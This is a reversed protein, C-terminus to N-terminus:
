TTGEESSGQIAGWLALTSVLIGVWFLGWFTLYRYPELQLAALGLLGVALVVTTTSQWSQLDRRRSVLALAFIVVALIAMPVIRGALVDIDLISVYVLGLGLITNLINAIILM